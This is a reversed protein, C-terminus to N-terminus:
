VKRLKGDTGWIWISSADGRPGEVVVARIGAAELEARAQPNLDPDLAPEFVFDEQFNHHGPHYTQAWPSHLIISTPTLGTIRTEIWAQLPATYGAIIGSPEPPWYFETEINLAKSAFIRSQRKSEASVQTVPALRVMEQTVTTVVMTNAQYDYQLLPQPTAHTVTLSLELDSAHLVPWDGGSATTPYTTQLEYNRQANGSGLRWADKLEGNQGSFSYGPLNTLSEQVNTIGNQLVYQAAVTQYISQALNTTLKAHTVGFSWWSKLRHYAFVDGFEGQQVEFSNTTALLYPTINKNASPQPVERIQKVRMVGPKIKKYEFDLVLSTKTPFDKEYERAALDILNALEIYDTKWTMVQAGLQVLSSGSIFAVDPTGSYYWAQVTEPRANGEPNAVSVAGLQTVLNANLYRGYQSKSITLTAVGNALEEPDPTSHHVLIAMSVTSEDVGHRLRELFANDNYFSAYVKRMARFVGRENLEESDCQSPGTTDEDLDDALCGSFSDYLGAGSFQDSDEVNTSSRFRIKRNLDFNQLLVQLIMQKQDPTFDTNDTFLNRVERLTTRLSAISPPWTHPQLIDHITARLSKSESVTQDLYADWLDFTFAIAHPSHTPISRRLSGFNAAKGGVYRIDVPHLNTAPTSMQGRTAKPTLNLPAPQMLALIEASLTADLPYSLCEVDADVAGYYERARLLVTQGDWSRLVTQRAADAFYVFPIGFSSALLAVHSNPTAPSLSIIGAVPPVEAPVNDTLLIDNYKLQGSAYAISIESATVFVLRGVAWGSAYYEDNIMWRSPTSVTIGHQNFYPEYARAVSTQEYTPLYFFQAPVDTVITAQVMAFWQAIQEPPYPDAGVFQIGIETINTNPAYLIAGLVIQQSNTHLSIADFEQRTLGRFEPLRQVAFDYHFLYKTSDQYIIQNPNPLTLAFKIWRPQTSRYSTSESSLMSDLPYHVQNIWDDDSTLPRQTARYFRWGAHQSEFDPYHTLSEKSRGIEIWNQFNTTAQISVVANSSSPHTDLRPWDNSASRTLEVQFADAGLSGCSALIWLLLAHMLRRAKMHQEQKPEGHIPQTMSQRNANALM